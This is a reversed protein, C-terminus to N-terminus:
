WDFLGSFWGWLTRSGEKTAETATRVAAGSTEVTGSVIVSSTDVVAQSGREIAADLALLDEQIQTISRAVGEGTNALATEAERRTMNAVASVRLTDDVTNVASALSNIAVFGEYKAAESIEALKLAESVNVLDAKLQENAELLGQYFRQFAGGESREVNVQIQSSLAAFSFCAILIMGIKKM